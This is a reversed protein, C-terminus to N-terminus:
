RATTTKRIATSSIDNDMDERETIIFRESKVANAVWPIELREKIDALNNPRLVCIARNADDRLHQEMSLIQDSGVVLYIQCASHGLYREITRPVHPNIEEHRATRGSIDDVYTPIHPHPNHELIKQIRREYTWEHHYDPLKRQVYEASNPTLVLSDVPVGRGLLATSAAHIADFHGRHIPAFSGVMIIANGQPVSEPHVDSITNIRSIEAM